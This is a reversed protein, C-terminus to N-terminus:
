WRSGWGRPSAGSRERRAARTRIGPGALVVPREARALRRAAERLAPSRAGTSRAAREAAPPDYGALAAEDVQAGQVNM